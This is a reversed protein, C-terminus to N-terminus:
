QTIVMSHGCIVFKRESVNFYDHSSVFAHLDEVIADPSFEDPNGLDSYGCGRLDVAVAPTELKNLITRWTHSSSDLGHLFLTPPPSKNDEQPISTRQNERHSLKVAKSENMTFSLALTSEINLVFSILLLEVPVVMMSQNIISGHNINM